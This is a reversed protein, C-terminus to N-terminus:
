RRMRTSEMLANAAGQRIARCIGGVTANNICTNSNLIVRNLDNDSVTADIHRIAWNQFDPHKKALAVFTGFQDWRKAFLNAVAESYGEGLEGDDCSAFVRQHKFLSSWNRRADVLLSGARSNMEPSCNRYASAQSFSVCGLGLGFLLVLFILSRACVFRICIMNTARDIVSSNRVLSLLM